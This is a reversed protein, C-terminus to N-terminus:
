DDGDENGAARAGYVGFAKLADRRMEEVIEGAGKVERVLGVGTGAYTTARGNEGWADDGMQMALDFKEKLEEQAVGADADHWSLNKISRGNYGEPWPTNRLNDYVSTRATSVGGDNAEVVAQQYGKTIQCEKSALFRTGVVAGAAGLMYAAAVGRGDAIGGAAVLYLEGSDVKEKIVPHDFIEPLLTMISAGVAAGHGGADTGQVVLVDADCTETVAVAEAVSTVQIWIKTDRFYERFAGTWRKLVETAPAPFLWIACPPKDLANLGDIAIELANPPLNVLLFGIGFNHVLGTAGHPVLSPPSLALTATCLDTIGSSTIDRGPVGAGLFGLGSAETVTHVLTPGALLRMPACIILPQEADYYQHLPKQQKQSGQEISDAM